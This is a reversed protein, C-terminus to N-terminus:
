AAPESGLSGDNVPTGIPDTGRIAGRTGLEVGLRLVPRVEVVRVEVPRVVVIM